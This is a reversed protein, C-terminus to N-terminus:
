IYNVYKYDLPEQQLHVQGICAGLKGYVSNMDRKRQKPRVSSATWTRPVLKQKMVIGTKM